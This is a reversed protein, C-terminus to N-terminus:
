SLTGAVTGATPLPGDGSLTVDATGPTGGHVCLTLTSIHDVGPTNHVIQALDLYRVTVDGITWAPPGSPQAWTGPYLFTSIAKNVAITVANMDAGATAKATWAVDISTYTPTGISVAFNVERKAALATRLASAITTSVPQGTSDVPFVTIARAQGTERALTVTVGTGTATAAASMVLHTSDTVSAVTTSAPIGTGSIPQGVQAPGFTASASTVTTNGSTLAGDTLTTQPILGDVALARYVGVTNRAYAAYDAPTIPRPALLQMEQSLRDLYSAQSEPDLGGVTPTTSVVSAIYALSDVLVLSQAGLGNDGATTVSDTLVVGTATATGSAVTFGATTFEVLTGDPQPFGVITGAPVVYGATDVMTWTSMCTSPSGALPPVGGLTGIYAFIAPPVQAAVQAAQGALRAFAELLAVDLHGERPTWGPFAAALTDLEDALLADPDVDIPLALYGNSAVLPSGTM